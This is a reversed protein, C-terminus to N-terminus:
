IRKNRAVVSVPKCVFFFTVCTRVTSIQRSPQSPRFFFIGGVGAPGGGRRCFLYALVVVVPEALSVYWFSCPTVVVLMGGMQEKYLVLRM